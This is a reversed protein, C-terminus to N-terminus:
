SQKCFESVTEGDDLRFAAISPPTPSCAQAHALPMATVAPRAATAVGVREGRVVCAMREGRESRM